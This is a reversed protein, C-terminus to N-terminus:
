RLEEKFWQELLMKRDSATMFAEGILLGDAKINELYKIDEQTKVGSESIFLIDEPVLERLRASTQLSTHFTKLDRNNVGIMKPRSGSLVKELEEEDHVEVLVDLGLEEAMGLYEQIQTKGLIAAILLIADAGMQVSQKIQNEHIIFDKRLVPLSTSEKVATLHSSHGKFFREDTLVSVADIALQEYEGAIKVPDFNKTLLGKSPSAQKVEAIIGMSRSTYKLARFLSRNEFNQILEQREPLQRVEELKHDVITDLITSTM